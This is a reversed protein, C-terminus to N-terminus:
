EELSDLYDILLRNVEGARENQIWHGAEALVYATINPTVTRMADELESKSRNSLLFDKEGGIFIAPRDMTINNSERLILWNRDLSRYYNLGGLFGTKEYVDIYYNLSEQSFWTPRDKPYGIRDLLGGTDSLNSSNVPDERAAGPGVMMKEFLERTRNNLEAEAEDTQFYLMYFFDEGHREAMRQLPPTDSPPAGYPVSMTVMGRYRSPFLRACYATVAAGWDHGVLVATEVGFHDMVGTVDACLQTADYADIETPIDSAGFGRMDVAVALYGAAAIVPLQNRWSYWLEPFGHLFIVLPGHGAEAIHLQIDNVAIRSHKVLPKAPFAINPSATHSDAHEAIEVAGREACGGALLLLLAIGLPSSTVPVERM